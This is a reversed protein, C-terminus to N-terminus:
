ETRREVMRENERRRERTMRRKWVCLENLQMCLTNDSGGTGQAVELVARRGQRYRRPGPMGGTQDVSSEHASDQVVNGRRPACKPIGCCVWGVARARPAISSACSDCSLKDLKFAASISCGTVGFGGCAVRGSLLVAATAFSWAPRISLAVWCIVGGGDVWSGEEEWRPLARVGVGGIECM